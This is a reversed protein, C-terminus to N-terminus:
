IINFACLILYLGHKMIVTVYKVYDSIAHYRVYCNKKITDISDFVYLKYCIIMRSDEGMIIEILLNFQFRDYFHFLHSNFPCCDSM